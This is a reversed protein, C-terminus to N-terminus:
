YCKFHKEIGQKELNDALEKMEKIIKDRSNSKLGLDEDEEKWEEQNDIEDAIMRQLCSAILPSITIQIKENEM